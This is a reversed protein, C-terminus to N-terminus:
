AKFCFFVRSWGEQVLFLSLRGAVFMGTRGSISLFVRKQIVFVEERGFFDLIDREFTFVINITDRVNFGNHKMFIERLALSDILM